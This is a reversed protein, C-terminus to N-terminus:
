NSIFVSIGVANNISNGNGTVASFIGTGSYNGMANSDFNINGTVMNGNTITFSSDTVSAQMEQISKVTNFHMVTGDRGRTEEMEQLDLREMAAFGPSQATANDALGASPIGMTLLLASALVAPYRRYRFALASHLTAKM